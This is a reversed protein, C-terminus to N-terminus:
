ETCMTSANRRGHYRPRVEKFSNAGCLIARTLVSSFSSSSFKPATTASSSFSSTASELKPERIARVQCHYTERTVMTKRSHNVKHKKRSPQEDTKPMSKRARSFYSVRFYFFFFLFVLCASFIVRQFRRKEYSESADKEHCTYESIQRANKWRTTIRAARRVRDRTNLTESKRQDGFIVANCVCISARTFACLRTRLVDTLSARM